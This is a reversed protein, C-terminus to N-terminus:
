LRREFKIAKHKRDIAKGNKGRIAKIKNDYILRVFVRIENACKAFFAMILHVFDFLFVM